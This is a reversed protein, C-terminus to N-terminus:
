KGPTLRLLEAGHGPVPMSFSPGLTRQDKDKLWLDMLEYGGCARLEDCTITITASASGLNFLGIAQAGGALPRAWVEIDGNKRIRHAPRKLGDENVNIVWRNTLIRRMEPTVGSNADDGPLPGALLAWQTMRARYEVETMARPVVDLTLVEFPKLGFAHPQGAQLDIGPRAEDEKWPSHARYARPQGAPIEFAEQVDVQFTAPRDSPNRLVLIAKSPTWSAWGYVDLNAPDGGLWHTDVLVDANRRSWKAGEALDDWNADTLLAPTVYLEQLQTGSGFFSRIESVFDGDPDTDLWPAKRAYILGCLMLSNLPL